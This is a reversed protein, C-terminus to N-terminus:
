PLYNLANVPIGNSRVEFHLHPGSSFGTNGSYGILQGKTVYQDKSVVLSSMHGYLTSLNNSHIIMIYNGYWKTGVAATAVYGAEAAYLPTGQPIGIDTGSHEGISAKFPYDSDHFHATIRRSTTPWALRADGLSNFKEGAGKKTLQDRLKRELSTVQANTAAQEKQLQKILAQFKAESQKTENILYVKDEKQDDLQAKEDALRGLLEDLQKKKDSLDGQQTQLKTILEQVRNLTKQLDNRISESYKVHDFFESFSNNALLISLYSRDDFRSLLRIFAGLREKDREILLEQETIELKLKEIELETGSVEAEKADIDLSAKAIQNDLIYVQNKLTVQQGQVASISKKYSEIKANIAEIKSRQDDIQKNLERVAPDDPSGGVGTDHGWVQQVGLFGGIGITAFMVVVAVLHPGYHNRLM